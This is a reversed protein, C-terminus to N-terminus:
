SEPNLVYAVANQVFAESLKVNAAFILHWFCFDQLAELLFARKKSPFFSIFEKVHKLNNIALIM